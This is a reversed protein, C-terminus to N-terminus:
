PSSEASGPSEGEGEGDEKGKEQVVQDFAIPPVSLTGNSVGVPSELPVPSDEEEEEPILDSDPLIGASDTGNLGYDSISRRDRAPPHPYCDEDDWLDNFIEWAAEDEMERDAEQQELLWRRLSGRSLADRAALRKGKRTKPKSSSSPSSSSSSSSARASGSASSSLAEEGDSESDLESVSSDSTEGVADSSSSFSRSRRKTEEMGTGGGRRLMEKGEAVRSQGEMEAIDSPEVASQESLVLSLSDRVIGGAGESGMWEGKEKEKKERVGSEGSVKGVGSGSGNGSPSPSPTAIAQMIWRFLTKLPGRPPAAGKESDERGKGKGRERHNDANLTVLVQRLPNLLQGTIIRYDLIVLTMLGGMLAYVYLGRGCAMGLAAAVWIGTATTIGKIMADGKKTEMYEKSIIGAGIFGVGSAVQAAVRASDGLGKFSLSNMTFMAAGTSVLAMTRLGAPRRSSLRRQIGISSGLCAAMSLKCLAELMESCTTVLFPCGVLVKTLWAQTNWVKLAQFTEPLVSSTLPWAFQLVLILFRKLLRLAGVSMEFLQGGKLLAFAVMPVSLISVFIAQSLRERIKITEWQEVTLAQLDSYDIPRDALGRAIQQQQHKQTYMQQSSQLAPPAPRPPSYAYPAPYGPPPYPSPYPPAPWYYQPPYPAAYQPMQPASTSANMPPPPPPYYYYPYVYPSPIPGPQQPMGPGQLPAPGSPFPQPVENLDQTRSSISTSNSSGAPAGGTKEAVGGAREATRKRKRIAHDVGLTYYDIAFPITHLNIPQGRVAPKPNEKFSNSNQETAASSQPAGPGDVLPFPPAVLSCPVDWYNAM